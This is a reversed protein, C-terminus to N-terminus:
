VSLVVFVAIFFSIFISFTLFDLLGLSDFFDFRRSFIPKDFFIPRVRLKLFVSLHM